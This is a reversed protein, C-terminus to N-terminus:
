REEGEGGEAKQTRGESEVGEMRQEEEEVAEQGRM